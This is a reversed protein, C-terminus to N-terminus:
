DGVYPPCKPEHMAGVVVAAGPTPMAPLLEVNAIPGDKVKSVAGTQKNM